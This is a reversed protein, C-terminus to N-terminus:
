EAACDLGGRSNVLGVLSMSYGGGADFYFAEQQTSFWGEVNSVSAALLVRGDPAVDVGSSSGSPMPSSANFPHLIRRSWRPIGARSVRALYLSGTGCDIPALGEIALTGSCRSFAFVGEQFALVSANGVEVAWEFDGNAGFMVLGHAGRGRTGSLIEFNGNAASVSVSAGGPSFGLAFADHTAAMAAPAGPALVNTSLVEGDHDLVVCGTSNSGVDVPWESEHTTVVLEDEGREVCFSTWGSTLVLKPHASSSVAAVGSLRGLDDFRLLALQGESVPVGRISPIYQTGTADTVATDGSGAFHMWAFSGDSGLAPIVLGINKTQVWWEVLGSSDTSLVVYAFGFAAGDALADFTVTRGDTATITCPGRVQLSVVYRGGGAHRMAQGTGSYFDPEVFTMLIASTFFTGDPNLEVLHMVAGAGDPLLLPHGDFTTTTEAYLLMAVRGESGTVITRVQAGPAPKFYFGRM